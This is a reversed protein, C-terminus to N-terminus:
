AANPVFCLDPRYGKIEGYEAILNLYLPCRLVYTADPGPEM